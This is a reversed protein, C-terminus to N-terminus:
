VTAATGARPLAFPTGIVLQRCFFAKGARTQAGALGQIMQQEMHRAKAADPTAALVEANLATLADAPDGDKWTQATRILAALKEAAGDAATAAGAGLLCAAVVLLNLVNRLCNM